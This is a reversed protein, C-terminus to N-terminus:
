FERVARVRATGFKTLSGETEFEFNYTIASSNSGVNLETSSWYSDLTIATGGNAEIASNILELKNAIQELEGVSPLFWDSQENLTLNACLSAATGTENCAALIDQTNQAGDGIAQGDAGNVEATDSCWSAADSQDALACVLGHEGTNDLYFVIGGEFLAGIELEVPDNKSDNEDDACSIFSLIYVLFLASFLTLIHPKM